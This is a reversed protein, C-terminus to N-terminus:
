KGKCVPGAASAWCVAKPGISIDELGAVGSVITIPQTAGPPLHYVADGDTTWWVGSADVAISTPKSYNGSVLKSAASSSSAPVSRIQGQANFLTFYLEGAYLAVAYPSKEVLTVPIVGGSGDKQIKNVEGNATWNAWYVHTADGAIGFPFVQNEALLQPAGGTKLMRRVVGSQSNGATWYAYTDDVFVDAPFGEPEFLVDQTGGGILVRAVRGNNTWNAWYLHTADVFLGQAFSQGTALTTPSGGALPAQLVTGANPDAWYVNQADSTIAIASGAVAAVLV